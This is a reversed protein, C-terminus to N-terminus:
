QRALSHRFPRDVMHDVEPVPQRAALNHDLCVLLVRGLIEPRLRKLLILDISVHLIQSAYSAVLLTCSECDLPSTFTCWLSSSVLDVSVDVEM